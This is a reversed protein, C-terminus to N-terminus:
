GNHKQCLILTSESLQKIMRREVWILKTIITAIQIPLQFSIMTDNGIELAICNYACLAVVWTTIATKQIDWRFLIENKISIGYMGVVIIQANLKWQYCSSYQCSLAFLTQTHYLKTHTYENHQQQQRIWTNKATLRRLFICEFCQM